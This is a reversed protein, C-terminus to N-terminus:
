QLFTLIKDSFPQFVLKQGEEDDLSHGDLIKFLKESNKPTVMIVLQKSCIANFEAWPVFLFM